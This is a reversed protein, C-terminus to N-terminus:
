IFWTSKEDIQYYELLDKKTNESICIVADANKIAM